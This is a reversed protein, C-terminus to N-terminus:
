IPFKLIEGFLRKVEGKYNSLMDIEDLKKIGEDVLESIQEKIWDVAGSNLLIERVYTIDEQTKEMKNLTEVLRHRESPRSVELSDIAKKVLMTYKGEIIDNASKSEGGFTGLLDDRYQFAVGIKEGISAIREEEVINRERGSLVYGFLMPYVFTYYATKLLCIKQPIDQRLVNEDINSSYLIDLLQGYGTKVYCNSFTEILSRLVDADVHLRGIIRIAYFAVIDGVTLALDKGLKESNYVRKYIKHLTPEGRRLESEDVIDDHILLFAHMIEIASGLAIADDCNRGGFGKYSLVLLLPRIRKGPRLVFRKVDHMLERAEEPSLATLEDMMEEIVSDIRETILKVNVEEM